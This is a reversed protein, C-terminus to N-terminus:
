NRLVHGVITGAADHPCQAKDNKGLLMLQQRDRYLDNLTAMLRDRFQNDEVIMIAAGNNQLAEANYKQHGGAFRYPVLIAPMGSAMIEACVTAGARSILLDHAAFAKPMDDIFSVVNAPVGLKAYLELVANKTPAGTQHTIIVDDAQKLFESLALPVEQNLYHAGLSGGTVLIRLGKTQKHKTLAFFDRRVPNGTVTAKTSFFKRSDAFSLFVHTACKGLLRNALGPVVNQECIYRKICLFFSAIIMPASVYGGVGIVAHPRKRILFWLSKLVALKLYALALLKKAVSQGAIKKVTLGFFPLQAKKALTEELAQHNGVFVVDANPQQRKIEQAIELAPFIHGGTGGGTVVIRM